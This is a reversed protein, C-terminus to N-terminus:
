ARKELTALFTGEYGPHEYYHNSGSEAKHWTQNTHRHKHLVEIEQIAEPIAMLPVSASVTRNAAVYITGLLGPISVQSTRKACPHCFKQLKLKHSHSKVQSFVFIFEKCFNGVM